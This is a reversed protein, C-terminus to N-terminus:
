PHSCLPLSPQSTTTSCCSPRDTREPQHNMYSDGTSVACGPARRYMSATSSRCLCSRMRMLGGLLPSRVTASALVSHCVDDLGVRAALRNSHGTIDTQSCPPFTSSPSARPFADLTYAGIHNCRASSLLGCNPAAAYCVAAFVLKYRLSLGYEITGPGFSVEIGNYPIWSRVRPQKAGM